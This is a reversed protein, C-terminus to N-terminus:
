KRLGPVSVELASRKVTANNSGTKVVQTQQPQSEFVCGEAQPAFARVWQAVAAAWLRRLFKSNNLDSLIHSLWVLYLLISLIYFCPLCTQLRTYM